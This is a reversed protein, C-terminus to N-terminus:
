KMTKSYNYLKQVYKKIEAFGKNKAMDPKVATKMDVQSYVKINIKNKEINEEIRQVTLIIEATTKDTKKEYPISFTIM